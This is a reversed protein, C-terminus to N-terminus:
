AWVGAAGNEAVADAHLAVRLIFADEDAGHRRTTEKTAESAGGGIDSQKEVGSSFVGDKNFRNADPLVFHIDHLQGIAGDDDEDGAEAIFDLVDFGAQHFDGINKHQIFGIAFAGVAELLLQQGHLRERRLAIAPM